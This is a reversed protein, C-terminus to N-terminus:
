GGSPLPRRPPPVPHASLVDHQRSRHIRGFRIDPGARLGAIQGLEQDVGMHPGVLHQLLGADRDHVGREDGDAATMSKSSM